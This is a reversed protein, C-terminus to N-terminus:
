RLGDTPKIAPSIRGLWEEKRGQGECTHFDGGLAGGLFINEVSFEMESDAEQSVWGTVHLSFLSFGLTPGM